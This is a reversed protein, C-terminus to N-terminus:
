SCKPLGRCQLTQTAIQGCERRTRCRLLFVKDTQPPTILEDSQKVEDM